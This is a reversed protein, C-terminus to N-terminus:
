LGYRRLATKSAQVHHLATLFRVMVTGHVHTYVGEIIVSDTLTGTDSADYVPIVYLKADEVPPDWSILFTKGENLIFSSGSWPSTFNDPGYWPGTPLAEYPLYVEPTSTQAGVRLWLIAFTTLLFLSAMPTTSLVISGRLYQSKLTM